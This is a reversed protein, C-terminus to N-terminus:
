PVEGLNEQVAGAVAADRAPDTSGGVGVAGVVRGQHRLVLGGSFVALSWPVGAALAPVPTAATPTAAGGAAPQARNPEPGAQEPPAHTM